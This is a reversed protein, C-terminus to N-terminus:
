ESPELEGGCNDCEAGEPPPGMVPWRWGCDACANEAPRARDPTAMQTEKPDTM